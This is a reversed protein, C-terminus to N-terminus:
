AVGKKSLLPPWLSHHAKWAGHGQGTGILLESGWPMPVLACPLLRSPGRSFAARKLM